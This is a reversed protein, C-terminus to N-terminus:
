STATLRGILCHKVYLDIFLMLFPELTTTGKPFFVITPITTLFIALGFEKLLDPAIFSIM